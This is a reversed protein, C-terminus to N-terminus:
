SCGEVYDVEPRRGVRYNLVHKGDTEFVARRMTDTASTVVLYHGEPGTYKHPQTEVRGAYLQRVRDESDGVGAGAETMVGVTDVEIRAITDGTLMVDVGSPFAPPHTVACSESPKGLDPATAGIRLTRYGDFTVVDTAPKDAAKACAVSAAAAVLIGTIASIMRM